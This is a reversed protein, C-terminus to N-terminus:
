SRKRLGPSTVVNSDAKSNGSFTLIKKATLALSFPALSPVDIPPFIHAQHKKYFCGKQYGALYGIATAILTMLFLRIYNQRSNIPQQEIPEKNPPAKQSQESVSATSAPPNIWSTTLLVASPLSSIFLPNGFHHPSDDNNYNKEAMLLEPEALNEFFYGNAGETSPEPQNQTFVRSNHRSSIPSHEPESEYDYYKKQWKYNERDESTQSLTKKM